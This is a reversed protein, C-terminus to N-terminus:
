PAPPIAFPFVTEVCRTENDLTTPSFKWKQVALKVADNIVTNEGRVSLVTVDGNEEIRSSVQVEAPKKLSRQAEPPIEPRKSSRLLIMAKQTEMRVCGKSKCTKMQDLLDQAMAPDPLMSVARSIVTTMRVTDGSRCAENWQDVATTLAKRYDARMQKLENEATGDVNLSLLQDYDDRATSFSSAGFDNHWDIVKQSVTVSLKERALVAYQSAKVHDPALKLADTFYKLAEPLSEKKYAELGADYAADAADEKLDAVCGCGSQEASPLQEILGSFDGADVRKKLPECIVTCRRDGSAAKAEDFLTIVKPPYKQKDISCEPGLACMEGLVAKARVNDDLAVYVLALQLKVRGKEQLHGPESRLAQDLPVLLDLAEKFSADYYLAESRSLVEGVDQKAEQPAGPVPLIALSFIFFNLFYQVM